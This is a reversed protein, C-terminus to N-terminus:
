RKSMSPVCVVACEEAKITAVPQSNKNARERSVRLEETHQELALLFQAEAKEHFQGIRLAIDPASRMIAWPYWLFPWLGRLADVRPQGACPIGSLKVAGGPTAPRLIAIAFGKAEANTRWQAQQRTHPRLM